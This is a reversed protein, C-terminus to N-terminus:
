DTMKEIKNELSNNHFGDFKPNYANSSKTACM